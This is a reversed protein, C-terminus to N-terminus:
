LSQGKLHKIIRIYYHIVFEEVQGDMMRFSCNLMNIFIHTCMHPMCSFHTGHHEGSTSSHESQSLAFNIYLKEFLKCSYKLSNQSMFLNTRNWYFFFVKTKGYKYLLHPYSFLTSYSHERNYMDM